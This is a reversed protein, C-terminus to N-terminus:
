KSMQFMDKIQSLQDKESLLDVQDDDDEM